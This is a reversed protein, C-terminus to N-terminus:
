RRAIVLLAVASLLLLTVPIWIRHSRDHPEGSLTKAAADGQKDPGPAAKNQSPPPVARNGGAEEDTGLPAAAPDPFPVKDGTRGRDIDIRHRDATGAPGTVAADKPTDAGAPSGEKRDPTPPTPRSFNSGTRDRDIDGRPTDMAM